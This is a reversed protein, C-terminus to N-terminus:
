LSKWQKTKLENRDLSDIMSMAVAAVQVLEERVDHWNKKGEEFETQLIAQSVEGVEEMLINMYVLPHHNQEGWKEIQREMEKDIALFKTLHHWKKLKMEWVHGRANIGLKRDKTMHCSPSYGEDDEDEYFLHTDTNEMPEDM